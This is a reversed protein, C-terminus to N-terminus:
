KDLTENFDGRTLLNVWLPTPTPKDELDEIVDFLAVTSGEEENLSNDLPQIHKFGATLQLQRGQDAFLFM